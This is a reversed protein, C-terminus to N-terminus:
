VIQKFHTSKPLKFITGCIFNGNLEADQNSEAM